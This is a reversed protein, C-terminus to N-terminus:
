YYTIKRRKIFTFSRPPGENYVRTERRETIWNGREDLERTMTEQRLLRGRPDYYSYTQLLGGKEYTNVSKSILTATAADYEYHVSKIL